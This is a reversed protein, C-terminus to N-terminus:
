RRQYSSAETNGGSDVIEDQAMDQGDGNEPEGALGLNVGDAKQSDEISPTLAAKLDAHETFYIISDSTVVALIDYLQPDKKPYYLRGNSSNHGTTVEVRFVDGDKLLVLDCPCSPSLARFVSYGRRLLDVSARLENIAGVTASSIGWITNQGAYKKKWYENQCSPGCYKAQGRAKKVKHAQIEEGCNICVM